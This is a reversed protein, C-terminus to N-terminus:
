KKQNAKAEKGAEINNKHYWENVKHSNNNNNTKKGSSHSSTKAYVVSTVSMVCLIIVLKRM